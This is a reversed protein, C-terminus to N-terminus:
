DADGGGEQQMTVVTIKIDRIAEVLQERLYSWGPVGVEASEIVAIAMEHGQRLLEYSVRELEVPDAGVFTSIPTTFSRTERPTETM